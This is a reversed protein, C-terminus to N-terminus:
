RETGPRGKTIEKKGNRDEGYDEIILHVGNPTEGILKSGDMFVREFIPIKRVATRTAKKSKYSQLDIVM